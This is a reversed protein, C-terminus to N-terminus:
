VISTHVRPKRFCFFFFFQDSHITAVDRRLLAVGHRVWPTGNKAGRGRQRSPIGCRPTPRRWLTPERRQPTPAWYHGSKRTKESKHNKELIM